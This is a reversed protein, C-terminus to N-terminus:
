GMCSRVIATTLKTSSNNMNALASDLKESALVISEVDIVAADFNGGLEVSDSISCVDFLVVVCGDVGPLECPAPKPTILM